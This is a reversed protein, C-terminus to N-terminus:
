REIAEERWREGCGERDEERGREDGREREIHGGTYRKM